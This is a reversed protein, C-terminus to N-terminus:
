EMWSYEDEFFHKGVKDILKDDNCCINKFNGNIKRRAQKCFLDALHQLARDGGRQQILYDTYSLTAAMAFLNTGIDVYRALLLQKKELRKQHKLVQHFLGRALKQSKLGIYRLHKINNTSLNRPNYSTWDGFWQSPYWTSYHSFVDIFSDWKEKGSAKPNMLGMLKRVHPDLIERAIFLQLIQSTGELIRNIRCDRAYRELPDPTDGRKALSEATEYGRGGKIQIAKDIIDWAAESGFYKAMAVELRLDIDGKDAMSSVMWTIGELALSNATIDSLMSYVSQHKGIPVGWQIRKKTWERCHQLCARTVGTSASPVTLRGTNLTVLAVKLGKGLGGIINEKSVKINNFRLLGNSIGKIGMFDCHHAVEFGPDKTEVIFATIQNREKGKIIAPPTQAMVVLLEADPGNTIWLKEGNLVYHSGDDSPTATTKMNAPDSGAGPETLAFASLAGKALKPLYKQKQEDTGFLMLPQPVGISQHASICVATSACHKAIVAVVRNYNTISLGLGNYEKPIKMGFCGIKALENLSKKPIKQKKEIENANINDKLCKKVKKIFDDGIKKDEPDQAPFPYITDWSFEGQFLKAAFSNKNTPITSSM